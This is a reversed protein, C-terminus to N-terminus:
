DEGSIFGSKSRVPRAKQKELWAEFVDLAKTSETTRRTGAKKPMTPQVNSSGIVLALRPTAEIERRSGELNREFALSFYEYHWGRLCRGTTKSKSGAM